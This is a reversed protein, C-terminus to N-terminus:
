VAEDLTIHPIGAIQSGIRPAAPPLTLAFVACFVEARKRM